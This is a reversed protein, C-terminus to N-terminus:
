YDFRARLEKPLIPCADEQKKFLKGRISAVFDYGSDLVV